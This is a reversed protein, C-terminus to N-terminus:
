AKFVSKDIAMISINLSVKTAPAIKYAIGTYEGLVIPSDLLPTENFETYVGKYSSPETRAAEINAPVFVKQISQSRQAESDTVVTIGSIAMPRRVFRRNYEQLLVAGDGQNDKLNSLSDGSWRQAAPIADWINKVSPAEEAIGLPTGLFVIIPNTSHTNELMLNIMTSQGCGLVSGEDVAYTVKGNEMSSTGQLASITRATNARVVAELKNNEM